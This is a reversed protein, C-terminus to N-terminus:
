QGPLAQVPAQASAAQASGARGAWRGGHKAAVVPAAGSLLIIISKGQGLTIIIIIISIVADGVVLCRWKQGRANRKEAAIKEM